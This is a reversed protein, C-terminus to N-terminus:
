VEGAIADRLQHRLVVECFLADAPGGRALKPIGVSPYVPAYTLFGRVIETRAASRPEESLARVIVTAGIEDRHAVFADLRVVLHAALPRHFTLGDVGLLRPPSSLFTAATMAAHAELQRVLTRGYLGAHADRHTHPAVARRSVALARRFQARLEGERHGALDELTVPHFRPVSAARGDAGVVVFTVFADLASTRSSTLTIIVGISRHTTHVVRARIAVRDGAALRKRVDLREVAVATVPARAFRMAALAGAGTIWEAVKAPRLQGQDDCTQPAVWDDIKVPELYTM